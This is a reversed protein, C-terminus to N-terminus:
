HKIISVQQAKFARYYLDIEHLLGIRKPKWGLERRAKDGLYRVTIDFVKEMFKEQPIDKSEVYKISGTWGAAKAAAVSLQEHYYVESAIDYLKGHLGSEVLLVYATALDKVHVWSMQKDRKGYIVLEESEGATFLRALHRPMKGESDGDFGYIVGPRIVNGRIHESTLVVDELRAREAVQPIPHNAPVNPRSRESVLSPSDGHTLGGSTGIYQPQYNRNKENKFVETLYNILDGNVGAADVISIAESVAKKFEDSPNKIDELVIPLVENQLLSSAGEPKRIIGYVRYGADRLAYAVHRGLYGSAGFVIVTSM